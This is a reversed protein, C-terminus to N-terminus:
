LRRGYGDDVEAHDTDNDILTKLEGRKAQMEDM